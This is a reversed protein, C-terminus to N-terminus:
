QAPSQVIPQGSTSDLQPNSNGTTRQVRFSAKLKTKWTERTVEHWMNVVQFVGKETYLQPLNDINFIDGARIGSIGELEVEAHMPAIAEYVAPSDGTGFTLFAASKMLERGRDLTDAIAGQLNPKWGFKNLPLYKQLEPPWGAQDGLERQEDTKKATKEKEFQNKAELVAQDNRLQDQTKVIASFFPNQKGTPIFDDVENKGPLHYNWVSRLVNENGISINDRSNATYFVNLAADNSLKTNLTINRVIGVVRNTIGNQTTLFSKIRFTYPKKLIDSSKITEVIRANTFNVDVIEKTCMSAPEEGVRGISFEDMTKISFQWLNGCADNIKGFVKGIGDEVTKVDLFTTRFFDLNVMIRRPSAYAKGEVSDYLQFNPLANNGQDGSPFPILCIDLDTSRLWGHTRIKSNKSYYRVFKGDPGTYPLYPDLVFQEIYGWSMFIGSKDGDTKNKFRAIFIDDENFDGRIQVVGMNGTGLASNFKATIDAYLWDDIYQRLTLPAEPPPLIDTGTLKEKPQLNPDLFHQQTMSIAGMLDGVSTVHTICTYGGDQNMTIDYNTIIGLMADYNGSTNLVKQQVKAYYNRLTFDLYKDTTDVAGSGGHTNGATDRYQNWGWEILLTRGPALFFPGLRELDALSHCVWSMTAKRVAGTVNKYEVNLATVGAVPRFANQSKYLRLMEFQWPEKGPIQDAIGKFIPKPYGAYFNFGPTAKIFPTIPRIRNSARQNLENQIEPRINSLFPPGSWTDVTAM